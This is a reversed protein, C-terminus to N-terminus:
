NRSKNLFGIEKGDVIKWSIRECLTLLKAFVGVKMMTLRNVLNVFGVLYFM